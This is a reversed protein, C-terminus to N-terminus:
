LSFISLTLEIMLMVIASVIINIGVIITTDCGSRPVDINIAELTRITNHNPPTLIFYKMKEKMVKKIEKGNM